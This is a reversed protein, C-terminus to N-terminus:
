VHARGIEYINGLIHNQGLRKPYLEILKKNESVLACIQFEQGKLEANTIIFRDM